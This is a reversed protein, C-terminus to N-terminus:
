LSNKKQERSALQDLLNLEMAQYTSMLWTKDKDLIM